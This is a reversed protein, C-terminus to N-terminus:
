SKENKVDKTLKPNYFESEIWCSTKISGAYKCAENNTSFLLAVGNSDKIIENTKTNVLYLM